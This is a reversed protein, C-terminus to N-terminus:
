RAEISPATNLPRSQASAIPTACDAPKIAAAADMAVPDAAAPRAGTQPHCEGGWRQSRAQILGVLDAPAFCGLPGLGEVQAGQQQRRGLAAGDPGDVHPAAAGILQHVTRCGLGQWGGGQQLPEIGPLLAGQAQELATDVVAKIAHHHVRDLAEGLRQLGIEVHDLPLAHIHHLVTIGVEGFQLQIAIPHGAGHPQHGLVHHPKIGSVCGGGPALM